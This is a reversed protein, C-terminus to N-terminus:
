VGFLFFLLNKLDRLASAVTVDRPDNRFQFRFHELSRVPKLELLGGHDAVLNLRQFAPRRRDSGPAALAPPLQQNNNTQNGPTGAPKGARESPGSQEIRPISRSVPA